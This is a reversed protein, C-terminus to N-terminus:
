KLQTTTIIIRRAQHKPDNGWIEKDNSLQQFQKYDTIPVIERTPLLNIYYVFLNQQLAEVIRRDWFRQGDSTQNSDTIVTKYNALLHNFFIDKALNVTNPDKTNSWVIIQQACQKGVFRHFVLKYKMVYAVKPQQEDSHDVLVFSRPLEYLTYEGHQGSKAIPTKRKDSLLDKATQINAQPDDLNFETPFTYQPSEFLDAFKM